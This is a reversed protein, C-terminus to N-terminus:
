PDSTPGIGLSGTATASALLSQCFKGALSSQPQVFGDSPAATSHSTTALAGPAGNSGAMLGVAVAAAIVVLIPILLRQLTTSSRHTPPSVLDRTLASLDGITQACLAAEVRDAHEDPTLRGVAVSENLVRITSDRDDDTARLDL